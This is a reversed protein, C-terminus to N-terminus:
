GEPEGSVPLLVAQTAAGEAQLRSVIEVLREGELTLGAQELLAPNETWVRGAYREVLQPTLGSSPSLSDEELRLSLVTGCPAVAQAAQALFSEVEQAFRSPDYREGQSITELNGRTPFTFNELVIEDFGLAALEGCLAALYAQADEQAPSLWRLGLEDRWNYQGRRLAMANNHYPAADDRFCCVRAVTYVEGANWQKLADSAAQPGSVESRLATKHESYWALAGSRGKMELVLAQADELQSLKAAASGGTVDSVPLEYAVSRAPRAPPEEPASSASSDASADPTETYHISGPDPNEEPREQRLSQLFPPLELRLGDDTYVIYEQGFWLGILVLVVVVALAIAIFRLIDTITRRGRYGGVGSSRSM